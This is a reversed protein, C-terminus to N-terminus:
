RKASILKVLIQKLRKLILKKIGITNIQEELKKLQDKYYKNEEELNDTHRSLENIKDQQTEVKEKLAQEQALLKGKMKLLPLVEM